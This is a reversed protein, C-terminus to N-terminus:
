AQRSYTGVGSLTLTDIHGAPDLKFEAYADGLYRYRWEVSFTDREFPRMDGVYLGRTLVLKGDEITVVAEGYLPDSFHGAYADLPLSPPKDPNGSAAVIQRRRREEARLKEWRHRIKESWDTPHAGLEADFVRYMLALPLWNWELNSLVVVGLRRGPLMGLVAQMGDTQGYHWAAPEGRYRATFLALGYGLGQMQPNFSNFLRGEWSDDPVDIQPTRMAQVIESSALRNGQYCGEDLLMTLWHAMDEASANVGGAPACNHDDYWELKEIADGVWAHPTAAHNSDREAILAHSHQMGLSRIIRREVFESWSNGTVAPIVEGAAMYLIDSYCFRSRFPHQPVLYRLKNIINARSNGSRYELFGGDCIGTRHTLLDRLRAERTTAPDHLKFDKLWQTMRDDWGLEGADVLLGLAFATFAKSNSGIAFTTHRDVPAPAGLERVGFGESMVTRGDKVIGIALGPVHWAKMARSIYENLGSFPRQM